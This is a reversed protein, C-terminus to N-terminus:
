VSDAKQAPLRRTKLFHLENVVIHSVEYIQLRLDTVVIRPVWYKLHYVDTEVIHPM